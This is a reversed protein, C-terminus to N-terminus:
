IETEGRTIARIKLKGTELDLEITRGFTGGTDEARITLALDRLVSKVSEINRTGVNMIDSSSGFAFMQAGGAIKAILRKKLAGKAILEGLMLPIGTDAFKALNDVNRAQTSCPLMIHLLGGLKLVPDYLTIGVCSGLGYTIITDPAKSTSYDSIGVKILKSM